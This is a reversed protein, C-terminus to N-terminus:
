SVYENFTIIYEVFFAFCYSLDIVSDSLLQIVHQLRHSVLHSDANGSRLYSKKFAHADNLRLLALDYIENIRLYQSFDPLLFSIFSTKGNRSEYSFYLTRQTNLYISKVSVADHLLISKCIEFSYHGAMLYIM